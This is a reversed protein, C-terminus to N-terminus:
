MILRADEFGRTDGMFSVSRKKYAVSKTLDVETNRLKKMFPTEFTAKSLCTRYETYKPGHRTRPRNVNYGQLSNKMKLRM